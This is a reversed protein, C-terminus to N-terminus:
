HFLFVPDWEINQFIDLDFFFSISSADNSREIGKYMGPM